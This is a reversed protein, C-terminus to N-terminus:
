EESVSICASSIGGFRGSTEYSIMRLICDSGGDGESSIKNDLSSTVDVSSPNMGTTGRRRCLVRLSSGGKGGEVM